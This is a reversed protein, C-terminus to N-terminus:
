LGYPCNAVVRRMRCPPRRRVSVISRVKRGCCYRRRVNSQPMPDCHPGIWKCRYRCLIRGFFIVRLKRSRAIPRSARMRTPHWRRPRSRGRCRWSIGNWPASSNQMASTAIWGGFRAPVLAEFLRALLNDEIQERAEPYALLQPRESTLALLTRLSTQLNEYQIEPIRLM